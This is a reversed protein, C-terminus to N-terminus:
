KESSSGKKESTLLKRMTNMYLSQDMADFLYGNQDVVNLVDFFVRLGGLDQGTEFTFKRVRSSMCFALRSVGSWIGDLSIFEGPSDAFSRFM